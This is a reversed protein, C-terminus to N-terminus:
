PGVQANETGGLPANDDATSIKKAKQLYCCTQIICLANKDATASGKTIKNNKTLRALESYTASNCKATISHINYLKSM